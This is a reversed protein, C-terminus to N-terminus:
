WTCCFFRSCLCYIAPSSPLRSSSSSSATVDGRLYGRSGKWAVSRWLIGTPARPRRCGYDPETQGSFVRPLAASYARPFLRLRQTPFRRLLDGSSKMTGEDADSEDKALFVETYSRTAARDAVAVNRVTWGVAPLACILAFMSAAFVRRRLSGGPKFLLLALPATVLLAFGVSRTFYALVILGATAVGYGTVWGSEKTYRDLFRLALLSLFLYPIDSMIQHGFRFFAPSIGIVLTILLAKKEDARDRVFLYILLLSALALLVVM